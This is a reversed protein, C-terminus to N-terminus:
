IDIPKMRWPPEQHNPPSPYLTLHCCLSTSHSPFECFKPLCPFQTYFIISSLSLYSMKCQDLSVQLSRGPTQLRSLDRCYYVMVRVRSLLFSGDLTGSIVVSQNQQIGLIPTVRAIKEVSIGNQQTLPKVALM